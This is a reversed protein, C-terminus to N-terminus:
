VMAFPNDLIGVVQMLFEGTSSDLANTYFGDIASVANDIGAQTGDFFAMAASANSVDSMGKHVAFYAGVDIKSNLYGRDPSGDQVGELVSLIFQDRGRAGSDLVDVWFDFGAQDPIRGLVNNYVATAFDANNLSTPYTARTEDQDIFLTAMEQLTTGNAFASGWFNLGLADPARNFYAIYLEIFSKFVEQSLGTTAGFQALNIVDGGFFRIIEVDILQDIGNNPGSGSFRDTITTATPSLTLTYSTKNSNYIAVDVGEGGGITDNGAGGNLTDDGAGGNLMDNGRMGSLNNAGSTGILIDNGDGTVANEIVTGTAISGWVTGNVSFDSGSALNLSVNGAIAAFNLWDASGGNLDQITGRSSDQARMTLFEDTFHHVTDANVAAGFIELSADILRTEGEAVLDAVQVTWTGAALEGRLADIGYIWTGDFATTVGDQQVVVVVQTGEASTLVIRIDGVNASNMQLRLAVHEIAVNDAVTLTFSHGTANGDPLLMNGLDATTSSVALENRSTAAAGFLHWVEAMRVANYANVMGYGYNTHLHMGGGNWNAADNIYWAAQEFGAAPGGITSGTLSASTALINQVDRWGLGANADLMLAVVGSVVPASASTGNFNEMYDTANEGGPGSLDTTVAAAPATVLINAGFSSYEATAGNQETAAVTITFRSANIGELNADLTDNGASHVIVTGLGDRGDRSIERYVAELRADFGDGALSGILSQLPTDGWSNQSIDFNAAQRAVNLFNNLDGNLDGYVGTGFINVGTIRAGWSVGVGGLGNGAESAIIGAVATGHSDGGIAFNLPLPDVPAGLNDVAHRAADYNDNLDPHNYDIGDDYVVVHAGRGNFDNWIREIDGILGFHWQRDYLPDNPATM